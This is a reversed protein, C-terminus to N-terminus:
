YFLKETEKIIIFPKQQVQKIFAKKSSLDLESEEISFYNIYEEIMKLTSKRNRTGFKKLFIKVDTINFLKSENQSLFFYMGMFVSGDFEYKENLTSSFKEFLMHFLYILHIDTLSGNYQSYETSPAKSEALRIFSLKSSIDTLMNFDAIKTGRSYNFILYVIDMIDNEDIAIYSGPSNFNDENKLMSILLSLNSTKEWSSIESIISSKMPEIIEKM